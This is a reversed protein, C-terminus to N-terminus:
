RKAPYATKFEGMAPDYVLWARRKRINAEWIHTGEKAPRVPHMYGSWLNYLLRNHQTETLSRSCRQLLRKRFHRRVCERYPIEEGM